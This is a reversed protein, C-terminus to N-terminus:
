EFVLEKKIWGKGENATLKVNYWDGSEGIVLLDTAPDVRTIVQHQLGPGSRINCLDLTFVTRMKSKKECDSKRVYGKRTDSHKLIYWDGDEGIPTFEKSEAYTTLQQFNDGPGSRVPTRKMVKVKTYPIDRTLDGLVWGMLNNPARVQYWLDDVDYAMLQTGKKVSDIIRYDNGPGSRIHSDKKILIKGENVEETFSSYVWGVGGGRLYIKYWDSRKESPMFIDNKALMASEGSSM